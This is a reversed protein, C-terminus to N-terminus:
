EFLCVPEKRQTCKQAMSATQISRNETFDVNDPM